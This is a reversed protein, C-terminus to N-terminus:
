YSPGPLLTFSYALTVPFSPRLYITCFLMIDCFSMNMLGFGEMGQDSPKCSYFYLMNIVMRYANM